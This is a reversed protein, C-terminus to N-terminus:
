QIGLQIDLQIEVLVDSRIYIKIYVLTERLFVAVASSQSQSCSVAENSSYGNKALEKKAGKLLESAIEPYYNALVIIIKNKM